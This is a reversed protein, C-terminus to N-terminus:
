AAPRMGGAAPLVTRPLGSAAVTVVAAGASACVLALGRRDLIFSQGAELVIDRPDNSQTIWVVGGLCKVRLGAGDQIDLLEGMNLSIPRDTIEAPM